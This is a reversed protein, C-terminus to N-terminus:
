DGVLALRPAQPQTVGPGEAVWGAARLADPLATPLHLVKGVFNVFM